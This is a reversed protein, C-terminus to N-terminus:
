KDSPIDTYNNEEWKQKRTKTTKRKTRINDTSNGAAKIQREKNKKIYDELGWISANVSLAQLEEEAKM